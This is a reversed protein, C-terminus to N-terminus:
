FMRIVGNSITGEHLYAFGPKALAAQLNAASVNLDTIKFVGTYYGPASGGFIFPIVSGCCAAFCGNADTEMDYGAILRPEQAGNTAAPDYPAYVGPQATLEGMITGKKIQQNPLLLMPIMRASEPWRYPELKTGDFQCPCNCGCNAM